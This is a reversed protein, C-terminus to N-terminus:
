PSLIINGSTQGVAKAYDLKAGGPLLLEATTDQEVKLIYWDRGWWDKSAIGYGRINSADQYEAVTYFKGTCPHPYPINSFEKFSGELSLCESFGFQVDGSASKFTHLGPYLEERLTKYFFPRDDATYSIAEIQFTEGIAKFKWLDYGSNYLNETVSIKFDSIIQPVSTPEPVTPAPVTTDSPSPTPIPVDVNPTIETSPAQPVISAEESIAPKLNSAWSELGKIKANIKDNYATSNNGFRRANELDKLEIFINTYQKHEEAKTLEDLIFDLNMGIYGYSDADLDRHFIAQYLKTLQIKTIKIENSPHAYVQNIVFFGFLFGVSVLSASFVFKQLIIKM